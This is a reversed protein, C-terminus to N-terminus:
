FPLEIQVARPESDLRPSTKRPRPFGKRRGGSGPKAGTLVQAADILGSVREAVDRSLGSAMLAEAREQPLLPALLDIIQQIDERTFEDPLGSSRDFFSALEEPFAPDSEDEVELDEDDEDEDWDESDLDTLEEQCLKLAELDNRRQAEQRVTEIEKRTPDTFALDWSRCRFYPDARDLSLMRRVVQEVLKETDIECFPPLKDLEALLARAVDRDSLGLQDASSRLWKHILNLWSRDFHFGDEENLLHNCVQVLQVAGRPDCDLARDRPPSVKVSSPALMRFRSTLSELHSARYFERVCGALLPQSQAIKERALSASPEVFLEELCAWRVLTAGRSQMLPAGHPIADLIEEFTHRAKEVQGSSGKRYHATATAELAEAIAALISRDLPDIERARRLFSLGKAYAKRKLCARGAELLATKSQPFRETMEDLLRNAESTHNLKRHIELLLVPADEFTPDAESSRQLSRVCRRHEAEGAAFHAFDCPRQALARSYHCLAYFRPSSGLVRERARFYHTWVEDAMDAMDAMFMPAQDVFRAVISGIFLGEANPKVQWRRHLDLVTNFWVPFRREDMGQHAFQFFRTLQGRLSVEFAPFAGMRQAAQYAARFRGEEWLRQIGPLAIGFEPDGALICADALARDDASPSATGKWVQLALAKRAPVTGEALRSFCSEAEERQNQWLAACGRLFLRWHSFPSKRPIAQLEQQMGDWDRRCLLAIGANVAKAEPAQALVLADASQCRVAEDESGLLGTAVDAAAAHDGLRTAITLKHTWLEEGAMGIAELQTVLGLAERLQSGALNKRLLALTVEAYRDRYTEPEKLYLRRFGEQARRTEGRALQEEARNLLSSLGSSGAPNGANVADGSPRASGPKGYRKKRRKAM